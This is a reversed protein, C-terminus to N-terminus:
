YVCTRIQDVVKHQNHLGWALLSDNIMEIKHRLWILVKDTKRKQWYVLVGGGGWLENSLTVMNKSLTGLSSPTCGLSTDSSVSVAATFAREERGGGGGRRKVEENKCKGTKTNPLERSLRQYM